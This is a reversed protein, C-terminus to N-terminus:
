KKPLNDRKVLTNQPCGKLVNYYVNKINCLKKYNQELVEKFAM